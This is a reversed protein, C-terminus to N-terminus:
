LSSVLTGMSFGFLAACGRPDNRSQSTLHLSQSLFFGDAESAMPASARDAGVRFPELDFLRENRPRARSRDRLLVPESVPCTDVPMGMGKLEKQLTPLVNTGGGLANNLPDAIDLHSSGRDDSGDLREGFDVRCAPPDSGCLLDVQM